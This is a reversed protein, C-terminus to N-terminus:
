RIALLPELLFQAAEVASLGLNSITPRGERREGAAYVWDQSFM